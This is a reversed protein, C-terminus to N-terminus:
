PKAAPVATSFPSAFVCIHHFIVDASRAGSRLWLPSAWVLVALMAILGAAAAYPRSSPQCCDRAGSATAKRSRAAFLGLPWLLMAILACCLM